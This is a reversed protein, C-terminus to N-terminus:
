SPIASHSVAVVWYLIALPVQACFRTDCPSSAFTTRIAASDALSNTEAEADIQRRPVHVAIRRHRLRIQGARNVVLRLNEAVGRRAVVVVHVGALERLQDRHLEAVTRRDFDRFHPKVPCTASTRYLGEVPVAKAVDYALVLRVGHHPSVLADVGSPHSVFVPECHRGVPVRDTTCLVLGSIAAALQLRANAVTEVPRGGLRIGPKAAPPEVM